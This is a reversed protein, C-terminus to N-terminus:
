DRWEPGDFLAAVARDRWFMRRKGRKTVAGHFHGQQIWFYITARSLGLLEAM